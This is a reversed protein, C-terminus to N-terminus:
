SPRQSGYPVASCATQQPRGHLLHDLTVARVGGGLGFAGRGIVDVHAYADGAYPEYRSPTLFAARPKEQMPPTSVAAAPEKLLIAPSRVMTQDQVPLLPRRAAVPTMSQAPCLKRLASSALTDRADASSAAIAVSWRPM